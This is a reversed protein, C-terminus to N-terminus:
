EKLSPPTRSRSRSLIDLSRIYNQRPTQNQRACALHHQRCCELDHFNVCFVEFDNKDHFRDCKLTFLIVEQSSELDLEFLFLQQVETM